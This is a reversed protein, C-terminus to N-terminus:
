QLSTQYHQWDFDETLCRKLYKQEYKTLCCAHSMSWGYDILSVKGSFTDYCINGPHIDGHVIGLAQLENVICRVQAHIHDIDVFSEKQKLLTQLSRGCYRMTLWHVESPYRRQHVVREVNTLNDEGRDGVENSVCRSSIFPCWTKQATKLQQCVILERWSNVGAIMPWVVASVKDGKWNRPLPNSINYVDSGDKALVEDHGFHISKVVQVEGSESTHKLVPGNIGLALVSLGKMARSEMQAIMNTTSLGTLRSVCVVRVSRSKLLCDRQFDVYEPNFRHDDGMFLVDFRLKEYAEEKTEGNHPVVGSVDRLAQLMAKRHEFSNIPPRKQRTAVEDTTLGIILVNCISAAIKIIHLHGQHLIDATMTMYGLVVMKINKKGSNTTYVLVVKEKLICNQKHNFMKM